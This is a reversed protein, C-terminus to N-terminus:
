ARLLVDEVLAGVEASGGFAATLSSWVAVVSAAAAAVTQDHDQWNQTDPPYM